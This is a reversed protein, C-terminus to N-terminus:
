GAVMAKERAATFQAILEPATLASAAADAAAIAQACGAADNRAALARARALQLLAADLPRPEHAAIVAIVALAADADTLAADADGGANAVLARLYLAREEHIWNGCRRWFALATDACRRMVADLEATRLPLEYLEWGLNNSTVAITRVLADDQEARPVLALAAIYLSAADTVRKSGVLAGVLMFRMDLLAATCDGGAAGLYVLELAAAALPNGALVAAVQLRGWARASEATPTQGDLIREGLRLARPWDGLHEGITHTALHVFPALLAGDVRAAAATELERALRESDTDHYRWGEELLTRLARTEHVHTM